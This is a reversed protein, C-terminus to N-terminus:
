RETKNRRTIPGLFLSGGCDEKGRGDRRRKFRLIVDAAARMRWLVAQARPLPTDRIESCWTEPIVSNVIYQDRRYCYMAYFVLLSVIRCFGLKKKSLNRGIFGSSTKFEHNTSGIVPSPINLHPRIQVGRCRTFIRQIRNSTLRFRATRSMREWLLRKGARRTPSM